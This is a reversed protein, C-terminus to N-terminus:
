KPIDSSKHKTRHVFALPIVDSDTCCWGGPESRSLPESTAPRKGRACHTSASQHSMGYRAEDLPIACYWRGISGGTHTQHSTAERQSRHVEFRMHRSM